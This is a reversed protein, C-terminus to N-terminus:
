IISILILVTWFTSFSLAILCLIIGSISFGKKYESNKRNYVLDTIGIILGIIAPLIGIFNTFPLFSLILGVVGLIFATIGM